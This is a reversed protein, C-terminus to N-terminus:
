IGLYAEKVHPDNMLNKGTGELVIRGNELVYARDCMALTQRVNQEVLMVTVGEKNIRKAIQFVEQVLIPSLGLSPEDFMLVKPLAMLGRGIACMQQEGGSMTGAAQKRREKMRPFLEYVWAMTEHRKKKAEPSLSGMILNEEVSMERFLRRAEPVHVVGQGIVRDPPLQDLRVGDFEITGKRPKLLGSITKLTTSKGAGNAGVLVLIEKERVEFSVDWLVQLDGYFVDIGSVKLM